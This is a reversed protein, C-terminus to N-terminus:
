CQFGEVLADANQQALEALRTYNARLAADDFQASAAILLAAQNRIIAILTLALIREM